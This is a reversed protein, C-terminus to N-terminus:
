NCDLRRSCACGDRCERPCSIVVNIDIRSRVTFNWVGRPRKSATRLTLKSIGSLTLIPMTPSDPEPFVTMDRAAIPSSDPELTRRSPVTIKSPLSSVAILGACTRLSNPVPIAIIKWSGIVASLGTRRTPDCIASPRRIRRPMSLFAARARLMSSSDNTRIGSGSAMNFFNGYWSDPPM